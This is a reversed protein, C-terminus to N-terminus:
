KGRREYNGPAYFNLVEQLNRATSISFLAKHERKRKEIKKEKGLKTFLHIFCVRHRQKRFTAGQREEGHGKM